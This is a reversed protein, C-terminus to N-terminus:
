ISEITTSTSEDLEGGIISEYLPINWDVSAKLVANKIIELVQQPQKKQLEKILNQVLVTNHIYSVIHILVKNKKLHNIKQVVDEVEVSSELQFNNIELRDSDVPM